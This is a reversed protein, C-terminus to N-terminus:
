DDLGFEARKAKLEDAILKNADMIIQASNAGPKRSVVMQKFAFDVYRSTMYSGPVEQMGKTYSLQEMLLDLDASKWPIHYLAEKNAPQYRGATGLISEIERAYVKQCDSSTWWELFTWANEKNEAAEMLICATVNSTVTRNVSGDAQKMGPVLGFKWRGELEPAAVSLQNYFGYNEILIPTEGTRFRTLVDYATLLGYDTYFRTWMDFADIAADTDLLPQKGGPTYLEGGNQFLFMTYAPFGAGIAAQAYPLPLGFQLNRKALTPILGIVDDWTQPVEVGLQELLDERYFMMYFNQTEPLGYVKGNFRMPEMASPTFRSEVDQFGQFQTLDAVAGRAAYNVPDSQPVSLAVDPGQGALTANLLAGPPVLKLNVDIRGDEGFHDQIMSDIVNAQDRGGTGSGIWVTVADAKKDGYSTYDVLFSYFFRQFSYVHEATKPM